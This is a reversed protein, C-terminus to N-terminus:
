GLAVGFQFLTCTPEPSIGCRSLSYRDQSEPMAPIERYDAYIDRHSYEPVLVTQEKSM